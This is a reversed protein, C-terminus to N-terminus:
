KVEIEVRPFSVPCIMPSTVTQMAQYEGEVPDRFGILAKTKLNVVWYEVLKASAYIKSKLQLDKDFKRADIALTM